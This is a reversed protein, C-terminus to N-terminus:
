DQWQELIGAWTDLEEAGEMLGKGLSCWMWGSNEMDEAVVDVWAGDDRGEEVAAM